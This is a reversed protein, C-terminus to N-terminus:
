LLQDKSGFAVDSPTHPNRIGCHVKDGLIQFLKGGKQKKSPKRPQMFLTGSEDCVLHSLTDLSDGYPILVKIPKPDQGLLSTLDFSYEVREKTTDFVQIVNSRGRLYSILGADVGFTPQM